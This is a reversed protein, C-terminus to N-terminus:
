TLSDPAQIITSALEMRSRRSEYRRGREGDDNRGVVLAIAQRIQDFAIKAAYAAAPISPSSTM